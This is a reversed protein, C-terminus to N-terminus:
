LEMYFVIFVDNLKQVLLIVHLIINTLLNQLIDLLVTKM